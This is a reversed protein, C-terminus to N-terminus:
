PRLVVTTPNKWVWEGAPPAQWPDPFTVRVWQVPEKNRSPEKNTYADFYPANLDVWTVLAVWDDRNARIGKCPSKDDLLRALLPSRTSGFALPPTIEAGGLRNSLFVLQGPQENQMVRKFFEKDFPPAPETPHLWQWGDASAVPTPAEPKVGFLTRYSQVYDGVRRSTFDLGGKPDKGGHCGACHRDLIPQIHREYGPPDRDGWSPAEPVSPVRGMALPQSGGVTTPPAIGRSEHCGICGRYEGHQFTVNSRMRRVELYNADLVHFYVPQDVPVKFSAPGDAEVPVTGIVRTPSWDWIGMMPTWAGSPSSHLDNYGCAKKEDRVCPWPMKQSIRLYKITGPKVGPLDNYVNM